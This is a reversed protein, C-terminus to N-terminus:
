ASPEPLRSSSTRTMMVAEPPGNRVHVLASISCAVSACASFCGFQLMPLPKFDDLGGVQKRQRGILDVNQHMRLRDDVTHDFKGITRNHRLQSRGIHAGRDRVAESPGIADDTRGRLKIQGADALQGKLRRIETTERSKPESVVRQSGAAARGRHIIGGVFHGHRREDPALDPKARNGSQDFRRHVVPYTGAIECGQRGGVIGDGNVM